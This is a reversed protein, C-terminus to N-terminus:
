TIGSPTNIICQIFIFYWRPLYNLLPFRPSETESSQSQKTLGISITVLQDYDTPASHLGFYVATGALFAAFAFFLASNRTNVANAYSLTITHRFPILRTTWRILLKCNVELDRCIHKLNRNALGFLSVLPLFETDVLTRSIRWHMFSKPELFIGCHTNRLETACICFQRSRRRSDYPSTCFRSIHIGEQIRDDSSIFSPNMIM